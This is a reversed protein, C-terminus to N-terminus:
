LDTNSANDNGGKEKNVEVVEKTSKNNDVNESKKTSTNDVNESKKTLEARIESMLTEKMTDFYKRMDDVTMSSVETDNDNNNNNNEENEPPIVKVEDKHLKAYDNFFKLM